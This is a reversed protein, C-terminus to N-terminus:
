ERLFLGYLDDLVRPLFTVDDKEDLINRLITLECVVYAYWCIKQPEAAHHLIKRSIENMYADFHKKLYVVREQYIRGMDSMARTGIVQAFGRTVFPSRKALFSLYIDQGAFLENIAVLESLKKKYVRADLFCPVNVPRIVITTSDSQHTLASDKSSTLSMSDNKLSEIFFVFVSM